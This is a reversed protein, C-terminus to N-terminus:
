RSDFLPLPELDGLGDNWRVLRPASGPEDLVLAAFQGKEKILADQDSFIVGWTGTNFYAGDEGVKEIEPQHTHGFTLYRVPNGSEDMVRKIATVAQLNEKSMSSGVSYLINGSFLALIVGILLVTSAVSSFGFIGVSVVFIGACVGGLLFLLVDLYSLFGRWLFRRKSDNIPLKHLALIRRLPHDASTLDGTIDYRQSLDEIRRDSEEQFKILDCASYSSLRGSRRYSKAVMVIFQGLLKLLRKFGLPNNRFAWAVYKTNPKINDAFPNIEEIQNLLYRVVLSGFPLNIESQKRSLVPFLGYRFSNLVEYQNGHEVYFMYDRDYFMWSSFEINDALVAGDAATTAFEEVRLLERFRAQVGPWFLEIDHNGIVVTLRNGAAIFQGLAGFFVQHGRAIKDLKMITSKEDTKAGYKHIYERVNLPQDALYSSAEIEAHTIMVQLFDFLDGNIILHISETAASGIRELFRAFHEDFFFDETPAFKGTESRCGESLHLDSVVVIM